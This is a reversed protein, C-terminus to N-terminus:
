PRKVNPSELVLEVPLWPMITCVYLADLRLYRCRRICDTARTGQLQIGFGRNAQNIGTVLMFHDRLCGQNDM